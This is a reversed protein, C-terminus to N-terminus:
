AWFEDYAYQDVPITKGRAVKGHECEVIFVNHADLSKGARTATVHGVVVASDEDGFSLEPTMHFTGGSADRVGNLLKQLGEVDRYRGAYAFRGMVEWEFSETVFTRALDLDGNMVAGAMDHWLKAAGTEEAV